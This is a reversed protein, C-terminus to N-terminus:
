RGKGVLMAISANRVTDPTCTATCPGVFLEVPLPVPNVNEKVTCYSRCAAPERRAFRAHRKLFALILTVVHAAARRQPIASVSGTTACSSAM